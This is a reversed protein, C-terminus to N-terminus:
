HAYWSEEIKLSSKESLPLTTKTKLQWKHTHKTQFFTTLLHFTKLKYNLSLIFLFLPLFPNSTFFLQPPSSFPTRTPVQFRYIANKKLSLFLSTLTTRIRVFDEVLGLELGLVLSLFQTRLLSGV